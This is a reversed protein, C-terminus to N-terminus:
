ATSVILWYAEEDRKAMTCEARGVRKTAYKPPNM